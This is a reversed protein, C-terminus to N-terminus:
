KLLGMVIDGHRKEDAQVSATQPFEAVIAAYNKEAAYEGNAILPYLRKRGLVRYLASLAAGKWARPKLTKGTFRHFIAAHRGEEAALQRFVAADRQSKVAKSLAKYMEVGDLEGRQSKILAKMSKESISM